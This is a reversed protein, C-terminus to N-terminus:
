AVGTEVRAGAGGLPAWWVSTPTGDAGLERAVARGVREPDGDRGVLAFVSPGAGSVACGLAGAERAAERAAELGPFLHSRQPGVVVDRLSAALLEEDGAHLAALVGTLWGSQEVHRALPVTEGLAERAARTEVRRRPHVVVCRLDPPCPLPVVRLDPLVATFGGFLSPVVNDAHRGGSAEAEGDLAHPLLAAPDRAGGVLAAGAVTAAVASAASGGLGAAIPIGKSIRLEFSGTVGRAELLSRLAVSATNRDPDSPLLGAHEGMEVSIEVGSADGARALTVRDGRAPFAFGLIDFGVAV